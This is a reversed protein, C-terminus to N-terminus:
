SLGLGPPSPGASQHKDGRLEGRPHCRKGGAYQTGALRPRTPETGEVRAEPSRPRPLEVGPDAPSAHLVHLSKLSAIFVFSRSIFHLIKHM